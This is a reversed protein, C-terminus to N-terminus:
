NMPRTLLHGVAGGEQDLLAALVHVPEILQHDLGMALSQADALALQFKSTLKDMRMIFVEIKSVWFKLAAGALILL